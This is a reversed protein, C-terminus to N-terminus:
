KGQKTKKKTKRRVKKKEIKKAVFILIVLIVVLFLLLIIPVLYYISIAIKNFNIPKSPLNSIPFERCNIARLLLPNDTNYYYNWKNNETDFVIKSNYGAKGREALNVIEEIDESSINLILNKRLWVIEQRTAEKWNIEVDELPKLDTITREGKGIVKYSLFVDEFNNILGAFKLMDEIDEKLESNICTNGYDSHLCKGDCSQCTQLQGSIEFILEYKGQLESALINIRDTRFEFHKGSTSYTIIWDKYNTEDQTLTVKKGIISSIFNFYPTKETTTEVPIQLRLSLYKKNEYEQKSLIAALNKSYQSQCIIRDEIEQINNAKSFKELNYTIDPKNLLIEVAFSDTPNICASTIQLLLLTLISILILKKM